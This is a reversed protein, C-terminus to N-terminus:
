QDNNRRGHFIREFQGEQYEIGVSRQTLYHNQLDRTKRERANSAPTAKVHDLRGAMEVPKVINLWAERALYPDAPKTM